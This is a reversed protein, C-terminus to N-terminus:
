LEVVANGCEEILKRLRQFPQEDVIQISTESLDELAQIAREVECCDFIGISTILYM